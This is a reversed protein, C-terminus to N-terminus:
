RQHNSLVLRHGDVEYDRIIIGASNLVQATWTPWPSWISRRSANPNVPLWLASCFITCGVIIAAARRPQRHVANQELLDALQEARRKLLSTSGVFGIGAPLGSPSPVKAEVLRLLSRLYDVIEVKTRVSDRDCRLERAAAAQRSAWWVLPHFWYVAEVLRQLFLHLPHQLEIHTREHRLIAAQEGPPFGRVVEPLVIVPRHFQWCFPSLNGSIVRTELARRQNADNSSGSNQLQCIDPDVVARRVLYTARCIGAVCALLIVVSGSLWAWTALWGVYDVATVAGLHQHAPGFDSWTVLRLHPLSFAGITSLLICVHMTSWCVDASVAFRPRRAIWCTVGALVAVQVFLSALIELVLPYSM